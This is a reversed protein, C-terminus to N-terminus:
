KHITALLGLQTFQPEAKSAAKYCLVSFIIRFSKSDSTWIMDSNTKLCHHKLAPLIKFTKLSKHFFLAAFCSLLRYIGTSIYGTLLSTCWRQFVVANFIIQTVMKDHFCPNVEKTLNWQSQEQSTYIRLAAQKYQLMAFYNLLRKLKNSILM